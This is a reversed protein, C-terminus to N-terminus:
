VVVVECYQTLQWANDAHRIQREITCFFLLLLFFFSTMTYIYIKKKKAKLYKIWVEM